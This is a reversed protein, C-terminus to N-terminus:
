GMDKAKRLAVRQAFSHQRKLRVPGTELWGTAAIPNQTVQEQTRKFQSNM